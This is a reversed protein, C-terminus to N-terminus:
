DAPDRNFASGGVPACYREISRSIRGLDSMRELYPVLEGMDDAPLALSREGRRYSITLTDAPFNSDIVSLEYGGEVPAIGSILLAHGVVRGLKIKTYPIFRTRLSYEYLRDMKRGLDVASTEREGHLDIIWKQRLFGDILQWRALEGALEMEFASSFEALNAFGPIEVVGRNGIITRIMRIAQARTPRSLEPRFVTLYVSSRQFLSHWWCVGIGLDGDPNAFSLRQDPDAFQALFAERDFACFQARASAGSASSALAPVPVFALFAALARSLPRRIAIM